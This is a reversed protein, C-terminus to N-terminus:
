VRLPRSAVILDRLLDAAGEFRTKIESDRSIRAVLTAPKHSSENRHPIVSVVRQLSEDLYKCKTWDLWQMLLEMRPRWQGKNFRAAPLREGARPARWLAMNRTKEGIKRSLDEIEDYILSCGKEPSGSKFTVEAQALASRYRPPYRKKDIPRVGILSLPLAEYIVTCGADTVEIVGVGKERARDSNRKYDPVDPKGPFAVFLNVPLCRQMCDSVVSELTPSFPSERVEVCILYRQRTLWHLTPRYPLTRNIEEEVRVNQLGRSDRLFEVIADATAHLQAPLYRYSM